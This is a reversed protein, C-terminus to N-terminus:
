QLLERLRALSAQQGEFTMVEIVLGVEHDARQVLGYFAKWDFTGEGIPLHRDWDGPNDHLHAHVTSTGLAAFWDALGSKAFVNFHGTDFCFRLRECGCEGGISKLLLPNFDLINELCITLDPYEDLFGRWFQGQERIVRDVYSPDTILPNVNPHFVIRGSGLLMAAEISRAVRTAAIQRVANDESHPIVDFFAGHISLPNSFGDLDNRYEEICASFRQPDNHVPPFSFGVIELGFGHEQAFAIQRRRAERDWLLTLVINHNV